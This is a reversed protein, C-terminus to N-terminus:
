EREREREREPNKGEREFEQARITEDRLVVFSDCM